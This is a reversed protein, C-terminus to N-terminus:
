TTMLVPGFLGVSLASWLVFMIQKECKKLVVAVIYAADWSSSHWQRRGEPEEVKEWTWIKLGQSQWEHLLQQSIHCCLELRNRERELVRVLVITSNNLWYFFDKTCFALVEWSHIDIDLCYSCKQVLFSELNNSFQTQQDHPLILMRLVEVQSWFLTLSFCVPRLDSLDVAPQIPALRLM